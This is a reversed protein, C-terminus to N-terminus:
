DSENVVSGNIEIIKLKQKWLMIISVDAFMFFLYSYVKCFVQSKASFGDKDFYGTFSHTFSTCRSLSTPKRSVLNNLFIPSVIHNFTFQM